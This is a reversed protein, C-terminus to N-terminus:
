KNTNKYCFKDFLADHSLGIISQIPVWMTGWIIVYLFRKHNIKNEIKVIITEYAVQCSRWYWMFRFSCCWEISQLASMERVIIWKSSSYDDHWKRILKFSKNGRLLLIRFELKSNIYTIKRKNKYFYFYYIKFITM